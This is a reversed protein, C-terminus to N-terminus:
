ARGPGRSVKFPDNGKHGLPARNISLGANGGPTQRFSPPHKTEDFGALRADDGRSTIEADTGFSFEPDPMRGQGRGGAKTRPSERNTKHSM